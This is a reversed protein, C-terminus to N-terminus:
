TTRGTSFALSKEHLTVECHSLSRPKTRFHRNAPMYAPGNGLLFMQSATNSGSQLWVPFVM